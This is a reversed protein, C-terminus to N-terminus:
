LETTTFVNQVGPSASPTQVYPQHHHPSGHVDPRQVSRAAPSQLSLFWLRSTSVQLHVSLLLFISLVQLCCCMILLCKFKFKLLLSETYLSSGTLPSQPEPVRVRFVQYRYSKRYTVQDGATHIVTSHCSFLSPEGRGWCVEVGRQSVAEVRCPLMVRREAVGVVTEM